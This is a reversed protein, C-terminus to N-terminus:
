LLKESKAKRTIAKISPVFENALKTLTSYSYTTGALKMIALEEALESPKIDLALQDVVYSPAVGLNPDTQHWYGGELATQKAAEASGDVISPLAETLHRDEDAQEEAAIEKASKELRTAGYEADILDDLTHDRDSKRGVASYDIVVLGEDTEAIQRAPNAGPDIWEYGGDHIKTMLANIEDPDWRDKVVGQKQVYGIIRIKGNIEFEEPPILPKSDFSRTGWEPNFDGGHPNILLKLVGGDPLHNADPALQIIGATEDGPPALLKIARFRALQTEGIGNAYEPLGENRLFTRLPVSKESTKDLGAGKSNESNRAERSDIKESSPFAKRSPMELSMRSAQAAEPVTIAPEINGFVLGM